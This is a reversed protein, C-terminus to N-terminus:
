TGERRGVGGEDRRGADRGDPARPVVDRPDADRGVVVAFPDTPAGGARGDDDLDPPRGDDFVGAFADEDDDFAPDDRAEDPM